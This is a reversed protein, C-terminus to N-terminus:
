PTVRLSEMVAEVAQKLKPWGAKSTRGALQVLAAKGNADSATFVVNLEHIRLGNSINYEADSVCSDVNRFKRLGHGLVTFQTIAGSATPEQCMVPKTEVQEYDQDSNIASALVNPQYGDTTLAPARVGVWSDGAPQDRDTAM